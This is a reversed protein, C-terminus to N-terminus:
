YMQHLIPVEVLRALKNVSFSIRFLPYISKGVVFSNVYFLGRENNKTASDSPRNSDSTKKFNEFFDLLRMLKIKKMQNM